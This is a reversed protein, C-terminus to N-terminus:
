APPQDAHHRAVHLALEDAHYLVSRGSCIAPRGGPPRVSSPQFSLSLPRCRSAASTLRVGSRLRRGAMSPSNAPHEAVNVYIAAGFFISATVLALLGIM